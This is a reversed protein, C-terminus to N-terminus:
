EGSATEAAPEAERLAVYRLSFGGTVNRDPFLVVDKHWMLLNNRSLGAIVACDEILMDNMRRYIATREPGPPMVSSQEYLRDYRPNAYNGDNSGPARNPGYMLQLVNQADPYDLSWSKYSIMIRGQRLEQAFASFNPYQRPVIKSLPYGAEVMLGRFQEFFQSQTTSAPHGYVLEPLNAANWGGANLLRKAAEVDRTVFDRSAGPDYEPVGPPIIGPFISSMGNYFVEDRRSWDFASALACRLQRNRETREPDDSDGIEPFAFNFTHYIVEPAAVVLAHYQSAMEPKLAGSSRDALVDEIRSGPVLLYQIENGKAFSEWRALGEEVFWIELRDVFPPARGDMAELGYGGHLAPDYGEAALDLPERRFAPNAELVARQEDLSVLTFPGSGVARIGFQEGYTEVAERPVVATFGQALTHVLQPFPQKLVLRVTYREPASVSAINDGWLWAGQSRTNPEFHRNFSYVFDAATVERGNGDEFADDDIFYVGQKLRITYVLGDPSVEPMSEALNPKLAYPRALYRYSYLTDYLNVVLHNAYVTSARIPDVTAVRGDLAHRYVSTGAPAKGSCGTALCGLGIAAAAALLLLTATRSATSAM